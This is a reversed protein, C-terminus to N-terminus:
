LVELLRLIFYTILAGVTCISISSGTSSGGETKKDPNPQSLPEGCEQCFQADDPNSHSKSCTKM